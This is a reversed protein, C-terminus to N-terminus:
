SSMCKGKFSFNGIGLGTGVCKGGGPCQLPLWPRCTMGSSSWIGHKDKPPDTFWTGFLGKGFDLDFWGKKEEKEKDHEKDQEKDQEKHKKEEKVRKGGQQLEPGVDLPLPGEPTSRDSYFSSPTSQSPPTISIPTSTQSYFSPISAASSPTSAISPAAMLEREFRERALRKKKRRLTARKNKNYYHRRWIKYTRLPSTLLGRAKARKRRSKRGRPRKYRKHRKRRSKKKKKYRRKTRHSGSALGSQPNNKIHAREVTEIQDYNIFAIHIPHGEQDRHNLQVGIDTIAGVIGKIGNINVFENEQFHGKHFPGTREIITNGRKRHGGCKKTQM